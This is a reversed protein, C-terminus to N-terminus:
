HHKVRVKVSRQTVIRFISGERSLANQKTRRHTLTLLKNTKRTPLPQISVNIRAQANGHRAHNEYWISLPTKL